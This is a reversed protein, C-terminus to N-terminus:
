VAENALDLRCSPDHTEYGHLASMIMNVVWGAQVLFNQALIQARTDLRTGVGMAYERALGRVM